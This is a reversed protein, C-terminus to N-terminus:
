SGCHGCARTDARGLGRAFAMADDRKGFPGRWCGNRGSDSSQQGRGDNCHRCDQRHTRSRDVTWNEYCWYNM